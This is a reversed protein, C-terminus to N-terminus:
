VTRQKGSCCREQRGSFLGGPGRRITLVNRKLVCRRTIPLLNKLSKGYRRRIDQEPINHGGQLVRERVRNLSAEVGPLWLYILNVRWGEVLMRGVRSLHSKGSLTTEFAFDERRKQVQEIEQLFLKGAELQKKEASFPALGAAIMDANLFISCNVQPLYKM